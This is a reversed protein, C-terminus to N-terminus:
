NAVQWKGNAMKFCPVAQAIGQKKIIREGIKVNM